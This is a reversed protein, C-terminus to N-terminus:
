DEAFKVYTDALIDQVYDYFKRTPYLNNDSDCMMHGEIIRANIIDMEEDDLRRSDIRSNNKWMYDLYPYLRLEKKSIEIGLFKLSKNTVSECLMGRGNSKM